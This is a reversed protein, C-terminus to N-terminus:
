VLGMQDPTQADRPVQAIYGHGRIFLGLGRHNPLILWRHDTQNGPVHRGFQGVRLRRCWCEEFAEKSALESFSLHPEVRGKPIGWRNARKKSVLLIELDGHNRRYPLVGAELLVRGDQLPISTSSDPLLESVFPPPESWVKCSWKKTSSHKQNREL